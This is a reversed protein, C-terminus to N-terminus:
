ARAEAIDCLSRIVKQFRVIEFNRILPWKDQFYQMIALDTIHFLIDLTVYPCRM